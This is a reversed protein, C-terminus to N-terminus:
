FWSTEDIYNCEASRAIQGIRQYAPEIALSSRDIVKQIAGTSIPIALVSECLSKVNYRSMAKIGSLEAIFASLRPGYGTSISPPLAAKVPKAPLKPCDCQNLVWHTIDMEIRPLEIQQHTYIPIMPQGSFDKHGCSCQEPIVPNIRSPTLIQQQHGPHGKQGGKARKSKKQKRKQKSFPSDSSPPKSSNQSNKQNSIELKELRKEMEELRSQMANLTRELHRIYQRVPEPTLQWDLDSIPRIPEM